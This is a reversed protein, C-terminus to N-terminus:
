TAIPFMSLKYFLLSADGIHGYLDSEAIGHTSEDDSSNKYVVAQLVVYFQKANEGENIIFNNM